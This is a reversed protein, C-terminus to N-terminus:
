KKDMYIDFYGNDPFAIGVTGRPVKRLFKMVRWKTKQGLPGTVTERSNFVKGTRLVKMDHKRYEEAIAKPWVDFDTKGVYDNKEKGLPKLFTDVYEDNLFDVVGFQNKMWMPLPISFPAFEMIEIKHQLEFVKRELRAIEQVHKANYGNVLNIEQKLQDNEERIMRAAYENLAEPDKKRVAFHISAGGALGALLVAIETLYDM